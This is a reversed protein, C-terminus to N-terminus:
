SAQVVGMWLTGETSILDPLYAKALKALGTPASCGPFESAGRNAIRM